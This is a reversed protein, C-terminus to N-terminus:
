PLNKIKLNVNPWLVMCWWILRLSLHLLSRIYNSYIVVIITFYHYEEASGNLAFFVVYM